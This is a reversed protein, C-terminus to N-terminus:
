YADLRAEVGMHARLAVGLFAEFKFRIAHLDALGNDWWQGSGPVGREYGGVVWQVDDGAGCPWGTASLTTSSTAATVFILGIKPPRGM